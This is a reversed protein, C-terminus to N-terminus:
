YERADTMKIRMVSEALVKTWPSTKENFDNVNTHARHISAKHTKINKQLTPESDDFPPILAPSPLSSLHDLSMILRSLLSTKSPPITWWSQLDVPWYSFISYNPDRYDAIPNVFHHSRLDFIRHWGDWLATSPPRPM